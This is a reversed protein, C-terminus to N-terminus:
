HTNFKLLITTPLESKKFYAHQNFYCIHELQTNWVIYQFANNMSLCRINYQNDPLLHNFEIENVKEKQELHIRLLLNIVIEGEKSVLTYFMNFFQFPESCKTNVEPWEGHM